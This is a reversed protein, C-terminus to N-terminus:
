AESQQKKTPPATAKNTTGAFPNMEQFKNMNDKITKGVNNATDSLQSSVDKYNNEMFKYGEQLLEGWTSFINKCHDINKEGYETLTKEQLKALDEPNKVQSLSQFLNVAASTNDSVFSMCEKSLKELLNQSYQVKQTNLFTKFAVQSMEQFNTFSKWFMNLPDLNPVNGGM